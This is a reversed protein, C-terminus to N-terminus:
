LDLDYAFVVDNTSGAIFMKLGDSKFFLGTPFTDLATVSFSQVFSATSIDWATSLSYEYVSDNTSGIIYVKLGNPKFFLDQPSTDQTAVSFSQVYSATSIDWATSLSYEHVSDASGVVYMKLGDPKLFVGTPATDETAVSFSQVFTATSIDWATSLSYEHISDSGSGVVYVKLGDPKFFVGSPTTEKLAVSFSQVFSATSVNWATSLSYEHISDSATGTVYMKLGDPKFFVGTPNTDQIAVSFYDSTPIQFAATSIDWSTSLNYKQVRDSSTGIIFLSLGDPKFFLGTSSTEQTAVSFSQVFTATSVNWATSLSYEHISDSTAGSVYVKLGDSKFFIAEPTTEKSAVSFSQVFSLSSLDWATTLNFENISDLSSGVTYLKTGDSKFFIGRHNAEGTFISQLNVSSQAFITTSIDWATAISYQHIFSGGVVYVRLGDPSFSLDYPATTQTAVSFSQVYSLTAPQWATSLNYEYITDNTLGVVYMKLGDPKFFVGQPSTEQSAISGYGFFGGNFTATSIDWGGLDVAGTGAAGMILDTSSM